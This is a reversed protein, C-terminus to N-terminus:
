DECYKTVAAAPVTWGVRTCADGGVSCSDVTYWGGMTHSRGDRGTYSWQCYAHRDIGASAPPIPARPWRGLVFGIGIGIGLALVIGITLRSM